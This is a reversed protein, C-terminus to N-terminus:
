QEALLAGAQAVDLYGDKRAVLGDQLVIVDVCDIVHEGVTMVWEMVWHDTGLHIRTPDKLRWADVYAAFLTEVSNEITSTM